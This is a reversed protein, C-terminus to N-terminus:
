RRRRRDITRCRCWHVTRGPRRRASGTRTGHEVHRALASCTVSRNDENQHRRNRRCVRSPLPACRHTNGSLDIARRITCFIKPVASGDAPPWTIHALRTYGRVAKGTSAGTSNRTFRCRGSFIVLDSGETSARCRPSTPKAAPTAPGFGPKAGRRVPNGFSSRRSYGDNLVLEFRLRCQGGWRVRREM